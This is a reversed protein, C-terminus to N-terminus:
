KRKEWTELKTKVSQRTMGGFARGIEGNNLGRKQAYEFADKTVSDLHSYLDYAAQLRTEPDPHTMADLLLGQAKPLRVKRHPVARKTRTREQKDSGM